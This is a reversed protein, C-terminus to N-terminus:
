LRPEHTGDGAFGIFYPDCIEDMFDRVQDLDYDHIAQKIATEAEEDQFNAKNLFAAISQFGPKKTSKIGDIATNSRGDM